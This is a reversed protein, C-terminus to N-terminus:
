CSFDVVFVKAIVRRLLVLYDEFFFSPELIRFLEHNPTNELGADEPVTQMIARHPNLGM